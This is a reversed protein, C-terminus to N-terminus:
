DRPTSKLNVPETEHAANRYISWEGVMRYFGTQQESVADGRVIEGQFSYHLGHVTTTTFSIRSGDISSKDFNLTLATEHDMKTVYGTLRNHEITIQVVSGKDDLEYEGSASDPLSSYGSTQRIRPMSASGDASRKQLTPTSQTMAVKAAFVLMFLASAIFAQKYRGAFIPRLRRM